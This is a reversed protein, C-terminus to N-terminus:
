SLGRIKEYFAQGYYCIPMTVGTNLCIIRGEKQLMLLEGKLISSGRISADFLEYPLRTRKLLLAMRELSRSVLLDMADKDLRTLDMKLGRKDVLRKYGDSYDFYLGDTERLAEFMPYNILLLGFETENNFLASMKGLMEKKRGEEHQIDQFDFDFILYQWSFSKGKIKEKDEESISKGYLLAGLLDIQGGHDMIIKYLVYINCRFVLIEFSDPPFYAKQVREFYIREDQGEVLLLIKDKM